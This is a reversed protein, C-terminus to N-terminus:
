FYPVLNLKTCWVMSLHASLDQCLVIALKAGSVMYCVSSLGQAGFAMCCVSSLGQTGFCHTLLSGVGSTEGLFLVVLTLLITYFITTWVTPFSSFIRMSFIWKWRCVSFLHNLGGEKESHWCQLPWKKKKLYVWRTLPVIHCAVGVKKLYPNGHKTALMISTHTVM